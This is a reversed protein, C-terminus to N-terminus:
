LPSDAQDNGGAATGQVDPQEHPWAVAWPVARPVRAEHWRYWAEVSFETLLIWVTLVVSFASLQFASISFNKARSLDSIQFENKSETKQKQCEANGDAARLGDDTTRRGGETKGMETKLMEAKGSPNGSEATQLGDDTRRGGSEMKLMEAKLMEAKLKEAKRKLWVGM